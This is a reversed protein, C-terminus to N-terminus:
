GQKLFVWGCICCSSGRHQLSRDRPPASEEGGDLVEFVGGRELEETAAALNWRRYTHPPGASPTTSSRWTGAASKSPSSRGGPSSSAGSRPPRTLSTVASWSTSPGMPSRSPITAARRPTSFGSGSRRLAVDPSLFMPLTRKQRSRRRRCRRWLRSSSGEGQVSTSCRVLANCTPACCRRSSGPLSRRSSADRFVGFDWGEFPTQDAQRILREYDM